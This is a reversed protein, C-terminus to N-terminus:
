IINGVENRPSLDPGCFFHYIELWSGLRFFIQGLDRIGVVGLLDHPILFWGGGGVVDRSFDAAM